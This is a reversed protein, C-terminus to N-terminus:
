SYSKHDNKENIQFEVDYSYLERESDYGSLNKGIPVLDIETEDKKSIIWARKSDLLSDITKTNQKFIGGTNCVVTQGRKSEIKRLTELFNEYNKITNSEYSSGFTIAGIFEMCDVVGYEDEWAIHYSGKNSEPIVIYKRSIYNAQNNYWADNVTADINKHLRIEIVDGITYNEFTKKFAFLRNVGPHHNLAEDLEGNKFVRLQHPEEKYFNFLAVSNKTVRMIDQEYNLIATKPFANLPKRGKVFKINEYVFTEDQDTDSPHKFEATLTVLAPNYYNRIFMSSDNALQNAFSTLNINSLQKLELMINKISRGIFYNTRYNFFALKVPLTFENSLTNGYNFYTVALNLLLKYDNFMYFNSITDHDDTFNLADISAGLSVFEVVQHTVPITYETEDHTIIINGQYDGPSLNASLLPKVQITTEGSASSPTVNLWYPSEITYTGPGIAHLQQSQAELINKIAFFEFASPTLLLEATEWVQVSLPVLYHINGVAFALVFPHYGIDYDEVDENLAVSITTTNSGSYTKYGESTSSLTLGTGTLDFIDKVTVTFPNYCEVELDQAAPLDEEAIHDFHMSEPSAIIGNQAVINVKIKFSIGEIFVLEDTVSHKKFAKFVIAVNYVGPLLSALGTFEITNTVELSAENTIEYGPDAADAIEGSLALVQQTQNNVFPFVISSKIYFNSYDDTPELAIYDKIITAIDIDSPITNGQFYNVTLVPQPDFSWELFQASNNSTSSYEQVEALTLNVAM